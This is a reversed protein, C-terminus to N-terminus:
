VQVHTLFRDPIDWVGSNNADFRKETIWTGKNFSGEKSYYGDQDIQVIVTWGDWKLHPNNKVILEMKQLSDIKM